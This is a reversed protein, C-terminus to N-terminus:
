FLSERVKNAYEKFPDESLDYMLLTKGMQQPNYSLLKLTDVIRTIDLEMVDFSPSMPNKIWKLSDTEEDYRMLETIGCILPYIYGNPYDYDCKDSTTKFPVTSEKMKVTTISGFKGPRANHYMRPFKLYLQDFFRLIDGCMDLASKVVNSQIIYKGDELISVQDNKIVNSFFEVCKGKASYVSVKSLTGVEEPLKNLNLLKIFPIVALGVVDEAKIKGDDGSRWRIDFSDGLQEKLYDYCGVQNSKSAQTLQINNNRAACIDDIADYYADLALQDSTKPFIIEVPISFKFLEPQKNSMDKFRDIIDNFNEDFFEKCKDWNKLTKTPYLKSIIFRAIAFTNHGGDMIGEFKEHEFSLRVRNRDLIECSETAILIGKTKYWFLEPCDSLTSQISRTIQNVTATRPNIKNQATKVLYLLSLPTLSSSIKSILVGESSEQPVNTHGLKLIINNM